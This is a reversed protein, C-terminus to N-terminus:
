KNIDDNGLEPAFYLRIIYEYGDKEKFIDEISCMFSVKHLTFDFLEKLESEKPNKITLEIEREDNFYVGSGEDREIVRNGFLKKIKKNLKKYCEEFYLIEEKKSKWDEFELNKIENM